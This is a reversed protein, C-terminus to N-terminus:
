KGCQSSMIRHLLNVPKCSGSVRNNEPNKCPKYLANLQENIMYKEWIKYLLLKNYGLYIHNCCQINVEM